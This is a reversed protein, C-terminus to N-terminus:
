RRYREHVYLFQNGIANHTAYSITYNQLLYKLEFIGDGGWGLYVHAIENGTKDDILYVDGRLNYNVAEDISLSM